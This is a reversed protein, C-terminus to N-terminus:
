TVEPVQHSQGWPDLFMGKEGSEGWGLDGLPLQMAGDIDSQRDHGDVFLGLANVKVGFVVDVVELHCGPLWDTAQDGAQCLCPPVWSLPVPASPGDRLKILLSSGDHGTALPLGGRRTTIHVSLGRLESTPSAPSRGRRPGECFSSLFGSGWSGAKSLM